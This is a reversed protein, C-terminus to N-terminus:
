SLRTANAYITFSNAAAGYGTLYVNTTTSSGGTGAISVTGSVPMISGAVLLSLDYAKTNDIGASTLTCSFILFGTATTGVTATANIYWLGPTLTFTILNAVATGTAVVTGSAITQVYGIQQSTVPYTYGTTFPTLLTNSTGSYNVAAVSNGIEVTTGTSGLNITGSTSVISSTQLVGNIVVTSSTSGLTIGGTYGSATGITLSATSSTGEIDNTILGGSFTATFPDTDAVTKRLYLQNALTQSLGGGSSVAYFAPNYQIGTFYYSPANYATM